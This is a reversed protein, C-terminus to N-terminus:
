NIKLHTRYPVVKRRYICWYEFVYHTIHCNVIRSYRQM